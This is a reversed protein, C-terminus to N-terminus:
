LWHLNFLVPTIHDFKRTYTIVRAASNQPLQLKNIDCDPLGVLLTNCYDLLSTIFAHVLTVCFDNMLCKRIRSISHVQYYGSKCVNNIHPKMTMVADFTVGLNNSTDSVSIKDNGVTISDFQLKKLHPSNRIVMFVTKNDNIMLRSCLMWERVEAIYTEMSQIASQQTAVYNSEFALYVQSDDAYFHYDVDHSHLIDGLPVTYVCFLIPGLVSGQPVGFLRNRHPLGLEM